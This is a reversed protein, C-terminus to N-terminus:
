EYFNEISEYNAVSPEDSLTLLFADKVNGLYSEGGLVAVTRADIHTMSTRCRSSPAPGSDVSPAGLAFHMTTLNLVHVDSHMHQLATPDVGGFVLLHPDGRADHVIGASVYDKPEIISNPAADLTILSSITPKLLEYEDNDIDYRAFHMAGITRYIVIAYPYRGSEDVVVRMDKIETLTHWPSKNAGEVRKFGVWPKARLDFARLYDGGIDLVKNNYPIPLISKGGGGRYYYKAEDKSDFVKKAKPHDDLRTCLNKGVDYIYAKSTKFLKRMVFNSYGYFLLQEANLRVIKTLLGPMGHWRKAPKMRKVTWKDDQFVCVNRNRFYTIGDVTTTATQDNLSRPMKPLTSWKVSVTMPRTKDVVDKSAKSAYPRRFTTSFCRLMETHHHAMRDRICM